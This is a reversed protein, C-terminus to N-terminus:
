DCDWGNDSRRCYLPPGRREWVHDIALLEAVQVYDPHATFAKGGLVTGQWFFNASHTWGQDTPNAAYILEYFRDMHGFFLYLGPLLRRWAFEHEPPVVALLEEIQENLFAAGTSPDRAGRVLAEFWPRGLENQAHLWNVLYDIAADDQGTILLLGLASFQFLDAGIDSPQHLRLRSLADLAEDVHGSGYLALINYEQAYSSLPDARLFSESLPVSEHTYGSTQLMWILPELILPNEPLEVLMAGFMDIGDAFFDIQGSLRLMVAAGGLTSDIALARASYEQVKAQSVHDEYILGGYFWPIMALMEWAEAFDPDLETAEELLRIAERAQSGNLAQKAQLFLAYADINETPRGRAPATGIEVHLEKIVAAAVEDQVQFINSLMRDYSESWLHSGDTADILQATIRVREGSRRVSGELLTAAGLTAGITRLDVDKGKFAFASTRGIVKLDPIEALLNRIEESMGDAFYENDPDASMNVFPLVAISNTAAESKESVPAIVDAAEIYDEVLLFVVAIALIGIIFFDLRRGTFRRLSESERVDKDLKIGEPTLEFAWTFILALPFGVIILVAVFRPVWDPLSLIDTLIAALQILLWATIAYAIAVKIVNRRKIEKILSM